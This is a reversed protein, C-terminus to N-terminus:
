GSETAMAAVLAKTFPRHQSPLLHHSDRFRSPEQFTRDTSFDFYRAKTARVVSRVSARMLRQWRADFCAVYGPHYPTTVLVVRLADRELEQVLSLLTRQTERELDPRAGRMADILQRYNDCTADADKKFHAATDASPPKEEPRQNAHLVAGEPGEVLAEFFRGSGLSQFGRQFHDETVLPWLLGKAYQAADGPIFSLRPFSAYTDFRREVRTKVGDKEYAVNDFVFSSYSIEIVVTELRPARAKAFRAIHALEFLDQGPHSLNVAPVGFERASIQMGHSNGVVLVKAKALRRVNERDKLRERTAYAPRGVVYFAAFLLVIGAVFATVRVARRRLSSRASAETVLPEPADAM